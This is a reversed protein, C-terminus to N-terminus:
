GSVAAAFEAAAEPQYDIGGVLRLMPVEVGQLQDSISRLFVEVLQPDWQRGKGDRLIAAAQDPSLARRYPRESTMADYADAVAIVRAGFPIDSGAFGTPYGQGDWREHHHRVMEVVPAFDPYRALLQAGQEAHGDMVVREEDTLLGEKRLVQDPIGIKGIDAVRAASIILPTEPGALKMEALMGAVLEAVRRSRGASYPNRADVADAMSELLQRTSEDMGRRFALYVLVTPLALLALAWIQQMAALAGLLGVFYQAGEALAGGKVVSVIIKLPPQGTVPSLVLPCTLFEGVLLALAAGLLPLETLMGSGVPLPIHAVLSGALAMLAQRSSQTVVQSYTNGCRCRICLEGGLIGVFVGTAALPPPLLVAMLYVATSSVQMTTKPGVHVPFKHALIVAAILAGMWVLSTAGGLRGLSWGM